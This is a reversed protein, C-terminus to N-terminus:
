ILSYCFQYGSMSTCKLFLFFMSSSSLLFGFNYWSCISCYNGGDQSCVGNMPQYSAIKFLKLSFHIIAQFFLYDQNLFVSPYRRIGKFYATKVVNNYLLFRIYLLPKGPIFKTANISFGVNLNM